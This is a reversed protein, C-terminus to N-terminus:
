PRPFTLYLRQMLGMTLDGRLRTNEFTIQRRGELKTRSPGDCTTTSASGTQLLHIFQLNPLFTKTPKCLLCVLTTADGIVFVSTANTWLNLNFTHVLFGYEDGAILYALFQTNKKKDVLSTEFIFAHLHLNISSACQKIIRKLFQIFRPRDSLEENGKWDTEYRLGQVELVFRHSHLGLHLWERQAVALHPLKPLLNLISAHIENSATLYQITEKVVLKELRPLLLGAFLYCPVSATVNTIAFSTCYELTIPPPPAELVQNKWLEAGVLAVTELHPLGSLMVFIYKINHHSLRIELTRLGQLPTLIYPLPTHIHLQHLQPADGNFLQRIDANNNMNEDIELRFRQLQPAPTNSVANAVAISNHGTRIRIELDTIRDMEQVLVAEWFARREQMNEEGGQETDLSVSIGSRLDLRSQWHQQYLEVFGKPWDLHIKRWLDQHSLAALRFPKIIQLLLLTAWFRELGTEATEVTDIWYHDIIMHMIEPPITSFSM